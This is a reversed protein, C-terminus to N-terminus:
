MMPNKMVTRLPKSSMLLAGYIQDVYNKFVKNTDLIGHNIVICYDNTFSTWMTQPQYRTSEIRPVPSM